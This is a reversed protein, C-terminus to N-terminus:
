FFIGRRQHTKKPLIKECSSAGRLHITSAKDGQHEASKSERPLATPRYDRLLRNAREPGVCKQTFIKRVELLFDATKRGRGWIGVSSVPKRQDQFFHRLPTACQCGSYAVTIGNPLDTQTPTEKLTESHGNVWLDVSADM